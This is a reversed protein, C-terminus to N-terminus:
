HSQRTGPANPSVADQDDEALVAKRTARSFAPKADTRRSHLVSSSAAAFVRHMSRPGAGFSLAANVNINMSVATQVADQTAGLFIFEWSYKETQHRILEAVMELSYERSANELGDTLTMVIVKSPKESEPLAAL